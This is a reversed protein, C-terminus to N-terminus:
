EDSKESTGARHRSTYRERDTLSGPASPHAVVALVFEAGCVIVERRWHARVLRTTANSARQGTDLVGTARILAILFSYVSLHVDRVKAHKGNPRPIWPKQSEM